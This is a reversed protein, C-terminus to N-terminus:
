QTGFQRRKKARQRRSTASEPPGSDQTLTAANAEGPKHTWPNSLDIFGSLTLTASNPRRASTTAAVACSADAAPRPMVARNHAKVVKREVPIDLKRLIKTPRKEISVM